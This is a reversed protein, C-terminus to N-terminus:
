EAGWLRRRAYMGHLLQELAARDGAQALFVLLTKDHPLPENPQIVKAPNFHAHYLPPM